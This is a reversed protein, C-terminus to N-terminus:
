PGPTILVIQFPRRQSVINAIREVVLGPKQQSLKATEEPQIVAIAPTKLSAIESLTVAEVPHRVYVLMNQDTTSSVVYLPSASGIVAHAIATDAIESEKFLHPWFPMAVWGRLLLGGFILYAVVLASVIVRPHEARWRDFMLGCIAALAMSAPMAYRAAVGGPWVVLVLTCMVSYLLAALLLSSKQTRQRAAIAIAPGIIITGPLM